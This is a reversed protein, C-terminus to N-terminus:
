AFAWRTLSVATVAQVVVASRHVFGARRQMAGMFTRLQAWDRVRVTFILPVARTAGFVAGIVFGALPGAFLTWTFVLWTLSTAVITAFGVGLQAGYGAGYVWGRYRTLWDEDVQRVIGPPRLGGVGLDVVVGLAAVAGLVYAASASFRLGATAGVTALLAGLTAGAVTSAVLHSTATIWFRQRRAREGLPSISSLM